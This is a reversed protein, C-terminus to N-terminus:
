RVQVRVDHVGRSGIPSAGAHLTYRAGGCTVTKQAGNGAPACSAAGPFTADILGSNATVTGGQANGVAALRLTVAPDRGTHNRDTNIISINDAVDFVSIPAGCKVTTSRVTPAAQVWCSGLNSSNTLTLASAQGVAQVKVNFHNLPGGARNVINLAGNFQDPIRVTVNSGLGNSGGNRSATVLLGGNGPAAVLQLNQALWQRASAEGDYAAYAFPQFYVEVNPSPSREVTIDGYQVDITLPTGPTHPLSTPQPPAGDFRKLSKASCKTGSADEICNVQCASSTALALTATTLIPVLFALRM